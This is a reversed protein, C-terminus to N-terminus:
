ILNNILNNCFGITSKKKIENLLNMTTLAIYVNGQLILLSLLEIAISGIPMDRTVKYTGTIDRIPIIEMRHEHIINVESRYLRNSYILINAEYM